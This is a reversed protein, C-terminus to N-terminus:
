EPKAARNGLAGLRDPDGQAEAGQTGARDPLAAGARRRIAAHARWALRVPSAYTGAHHSRTEGAAWRNGRPRDKSMVALDGYDSGHAAEIVATCARSCWCATGTAMGTGSPAAASASLSSRPAQPSASPPRWWTRM